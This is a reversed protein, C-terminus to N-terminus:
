VALMRLQSLCLCPQYGAAPQLAQVLDLRCIAHHLAMPLHTHGPRAQSLVISRIINGFVELGFAPYVTCQVFRENQCSVVGKSYYALLQASPNSNDGKSWDEKGEILLINALKLGPFSRTSVSITGDSEATSEQM